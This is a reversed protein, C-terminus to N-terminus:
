LDCVACPYFQRGLGIETKLPSEKRRRSHGLDLRFTDTNNLHGTGQNSRESIAGQAM